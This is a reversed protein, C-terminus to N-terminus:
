KALLKECIKKAVADLKAQNPFFYHLAEGELIEAGTCDFKKNMQKLARKAIFKFPLGHTIFSLAKKGKLSELSQIYSIAAPSASGAWVPGGVLIAQVDEFEPLRRFEVNRSSPKVQGSTRLLEVEAEHGMARWQDAIARALNATHGSESHVAIGINM